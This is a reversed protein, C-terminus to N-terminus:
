GAISKLTKDLISLAEDIESDSLNLPPLLRLIDSGARGALLYNERLNSILEANSITCKLGLMLGKGQVNTILEPHLKQIDELGNWLTKAHTQVTELFGDELMLDLVANGVATALPNGGFTSGHTGVVMCDAVKQSALCAGIPFGGGLGKASALIDPIIDAWEYAFLKGTRGMGCQIEDVMLLIGHQDCLTRVQKLYGDPAPLVGGEGQVPELIIGATENTIAAELKEIDGFPVHDFGMDGKFFGKTHSPNGAAAITALTRGHFSNNMGIIRYREPNGNDFHYRRMMKLGAEVAEAGSNGFFVQDAFSHKVLRQALIEGAEVRFMNSSHWYKSAQEQLTQVLHPHAHGFGTVAIGSIFDLFKEGSKSYLYSGKGYEFIVEPPSYTAMLASNTM